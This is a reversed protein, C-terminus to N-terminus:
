KKRIYRNVCTQTIAFTKLFREKLGKRQNETDYLAASFKFTPSEFLERGSRIMEKKSIMTLFTEAITDADFVAQEILQRGGIMAILDRIEQSDNKRNIENQLEALRLGSQYSYLFCNMLELDEARAPEQSSLLSVIMCLFARKCAGAISPNQMMDKQDGVMSIM